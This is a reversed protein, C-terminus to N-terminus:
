EETIAEYLEQWDIKVVEHCSMDTMFDHLNDYLEQVLKELQDPAEVQKVGRWVAENSSIWNYANWTEWNAWGNYGEVKPVIRKGECVVKTYHAIHPPVLLDRKLVIVTIGADQIQQLAWRASKTNPIEVMPVTVIHGIRRERVTLDLVENAIRSSEGWFEIYDGLEIAVAANPNTNNAPKYYKEYIETITSM